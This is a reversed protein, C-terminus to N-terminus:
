NSEGNNPVMRISGKLPVYPKCNMKWLCKGESVGNNRYCDTVRFALCYNRGSDNSNEWIVRSKALFISTETEKEM